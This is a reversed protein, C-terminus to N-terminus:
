HPSIWSLASSVARRRSNGASIRVTTLRIPRGSIPRSAPPTFKVSVQTRSFSGSRHCLTRVFSSSMSRIPSTQSRSIGPVNNLKLWGISNRNLSSSEPTRAARPMPIKPSSRSISWSFALAM